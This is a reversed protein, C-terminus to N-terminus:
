DVCQPNRCPECYLSNIEGITYGDRANGTVTNGNEREEAASDRMFSQAEKLTDFIDNDDPLCGPSSFYVHYHTKATETM